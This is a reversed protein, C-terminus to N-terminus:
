GIKGWFDLNKGWKKAKQASKIWNLGWFGLKGGMKRSKPSM